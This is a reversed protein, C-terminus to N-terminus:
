FRSPPVSEGKFVRLCTPRLFLAREGLPQGLKEHPRRMPAAADMANSAQRGRLKKPLWARVKKDGNAVSTKERSSYWRKVRM